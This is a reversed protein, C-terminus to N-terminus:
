GPNNANTSEAAQKRKRTFSNDLEGRSWKEMDAFTSYEHSILFDVFQNPPKDLAELAIAVMRPLTGWMLDNTELGMVAQFGLQSSIILDSVPGYDIRGVLEGDYDPGCLYAPTVVLYGYCPHPRDSYVSCKKEPTLFLCPKRAQFITRPNEGEQRDGDAYLAAIFEPTNRGERRLRQAMQMAEFMTIYVQISCCYPETCTNCSIPQEKDNDLVKLKFHEWEQKPVQYIGNIDKLLKEIDSPQKFERALRHLITARKM